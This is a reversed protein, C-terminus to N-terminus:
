HAMGPRKKKIKTQQVTLLLCTWKFIKRTAQNSSCVELTLLLQEPLQTVVVEWVDVMIPPLGPRTTIPPSDHELPRPNLDRCWISSLCKKVNIQQLIQLNAWKKLLKIKAINTCCVTM